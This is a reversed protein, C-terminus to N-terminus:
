ESAVDEVTVVRFDLGEARTLAALKVKLNVGEAKMKAATRSSGTTAIKPGFLCKFFMEM